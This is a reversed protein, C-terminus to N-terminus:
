RIYRQLIERTKPETLKTICGKDRLENLVEELSPKQELNERQFSGTSFVARVGLGADSNRPDWGCDLDARVAGAWFGAVRDARPYWYYLNGSNVNKPPLGQLVKFLEIETLYRKFYNPFALM